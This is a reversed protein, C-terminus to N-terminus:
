SHIVIRVDRVIVDCEDTQVGRAYAAFDRDLYDPPTLEAPACYRFRVHPPAPPLPITLFVFAALFTALTM